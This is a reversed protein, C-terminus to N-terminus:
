RLCVWRGDRVLCPSDVSRRRCHREPVARPAHDMLQAILPWGGSVEKILKSGSKEMEHIVTLKVAEGQKELEYTLCAEYASELLGPGVTSHVKMAAGIIAHGIEDDTM